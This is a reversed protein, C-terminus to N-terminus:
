GEAVRDVVQLGKKKDLRLWRECIDFQVVFGLVRDIDFTHWGVMEDIKEFRWESLMLNLELPNSKKTEFITKLPKFADPPDFSPSTKQELIYQIFPEEPDEFRFEQELNRGLDFARLATMVLRWQWEFTLFKETFGIAKKREVRFFDRLLEPFHAIRQSKEEYSEMYQSLYDPLKEHHLLIEELEKEDFNGGSEILEGDVYKGQWMLRVNELDVLRRLLTVNAFDHPTLNQRLLHDLERFDIETPAGIKLQPLLTTIFYYKAM